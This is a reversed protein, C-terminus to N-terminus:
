VQFGPEQNQELDRRNGYEVAMWIGLTM